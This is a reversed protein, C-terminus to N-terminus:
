GQALAPTILLATAPGVILIKGTKHTFVQPAETPRFDEHGLVEPTVIEIKM